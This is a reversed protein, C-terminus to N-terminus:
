VPLSSEYNSKSEVALLLLPLSSVFGAIGTGGPAASLPAIAAALAQILTSMQSFRCYGSMSPNLGGPVPPMLTWANPLGDVITSPTSPLITSNLHFTATNVSNWLGNTAASSAKSPDLVLTGGGRSHVSTSMHIDGHVEKKYKGGGSLISGVVVKSSGSLVRDEKTFCNAPNLAIFPNQLPTPGNVVVKHYKGSTVVTDGASTQEINGKSQHKLSNNAQAVIEEAVTELVGNEEDVGGAVQVVSDGKQLFLSEGVITVRGSPDVDVGYGRGSKLAISNGLQFEINTNVSDDRNPNTESSSVNGKFDLSFGGDSQPGINLSGLGTRLSFSHCDVSVKSLEGNTTIRATGSDLINVGGSLLRLGNGGPVKIFTDGPLAEPVALGLNNGEGILSFKSDLIDRSEVTSNTNVEVSNIEETGTSGIRQHVKPIAGLIVPVGDVNVCLVEQGPQYAITSASNGDDGSTPVLNIAVPSYEKEGEYTNTEISQNNGLVNVENITAKYINM